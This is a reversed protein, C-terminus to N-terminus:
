SLTENITEILAELNKLTQPATFTEDGTQTLGHVTEPHQACLRIAAPGGFSIGLPLIETFGKGALWEYASEMDSLQSQPTFASLPEASDGHGRFDIRLCSIGNELLKEAIRASTDYWENKDGCIGHAILVAKQGKGETFIAPIMIGDKGIIETNKEKVMM